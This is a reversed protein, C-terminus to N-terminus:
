INFYNKIYSELQPIKIAHVIRDSYEPKLMSVEDKYLEYLDFYGVGSSEAIQKLGNNFYQTISARQDDTGVFPFESNPSDCDHIRIPPIISILHLRVHEKSRSVFEEIRELMVDVGREYDDPYNKIINSRIDIEGLSLMVHQDKECKTFVTMDPYPTYSLNSNFDIFTKQDRCLRWYTVPGIWRIDFLSELTTDTWLGRRFNPNNAFLQSHSDGIVIIRDM